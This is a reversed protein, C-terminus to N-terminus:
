RAPMWAFASSGASPTPLADYEVPPAVRAGDRPGFLQLARQHLARRQMEYHRTWTAGPMNTAFWQPGRDLQQV